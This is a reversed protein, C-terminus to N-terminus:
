FIKNIVKLLEIKTTQYEIPNYGTVKNLRFLSGDIYILKSFDLNLIDFTNLLANCTLLKSNKDTVEAMYDSYFSNFLNTTPYSLATFYIEKPAGFSIDNGLTFPDDLHGAYGYATLTVLDTNGNKIKYSARGSIKKVQMIRIVSDMADESTNSNSLKYIAPYVKDTGTFQYLVSNAFIVETTDTDKVFDFETDFLFDGYGENFKKRYNEAYHDNDPKFKFQYYRANIESMPKISLPKSRDIKNSWDISSGDYFDIYPKIILKKEDFQHDFVYLNFMKCISIFFDRQFIGKPIVDNMNLTDGYSVLVQTPATSNIKLEGGFQQIDIVNSGIELNLVDNTAFTINNVSLDVNFQQPTSTVYASQSAIVSGNKKLMFQVSEPDNTMSNISGFYTCSINSNLSTAPVFTFTDNNGNTSFSGLTLITYRAFQINSFTQATPDGSFALSTATTFLQTQNNPVILRQALATNLFAFDYTYGSGDLIKELYEKVYFAPRFAKFQFDVKNSSVAGYDILPYFVDSGSVTNWSNTINTENWAENYSNFNLDELKKNALASIFGGLEGFVSCQYEIRGNDNVVELLRLVGKFIQIRDIFIKCKASKSANFNYGVNPQLNDTFNANQLDFIFGFLKNNNNSGALNITKSYSTNKSGFDMIDDVAYVFDTSIEQTLDLEFDEVFIETRM